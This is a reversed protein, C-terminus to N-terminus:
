NNDLVDAYCAVTKAMENGRPARGFFQLLGYDPHMLYTFTSHEMLYFEPDEPDAEKAFYVQYAKAAANTQAETGSLGEMRPHIYSTFDAMAEPTDRMPDITIMVPKVMIGQQELIEVAEANRATDFPCVDPCFTYGFYVLTLGDIVDTETVTEGTESVLEFPGGITAGPATSNTRCQEFIDPTATTYYYAGGGIGVSVVAATTFLLIRNM